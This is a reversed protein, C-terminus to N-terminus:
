IGHVHSRMDHIEKAKLKLSKGIVLGALRIELTKILSGATILSSTFDLPISLHFSLDCESDDSHSYLDEKM